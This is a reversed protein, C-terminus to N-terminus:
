LQGIWKLSLVPINQFIINLSELGAANDRVNYKM